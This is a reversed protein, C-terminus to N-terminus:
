AVWVGNVRNNKQISAEGTLSIGVADLELVGILCNSVLNNTGDGLIGIGLEGVTGISINTVMSDGGSLFIGSCGGAILGIRINSVICSSFFVIGALSNLIPINIDTIMGINISIEGYVSGQIDINSIVGESVAIRSYLSGIVTCNSITGIGVWFSLNDYLNQEDIITCNNIYGNGEIYFGSAQSETVTCNSITGSAAYVCYSLAYNTSFKCDEVVGSGGIMIAASGEGTVNDVVDIGSIKINNDGSFGAFSEILPFSIKVGNGRIIFNDPIVITEAVYISGGLFDVTIPFTGEGRATSLTQLAVNIALADTNTVGGVLVLDAREKNIANSPAIIFNTSVISEGGGTEAAAEAMAKVENVAGVLQKSQTQLNAVDGVDTALVLGIDTSELGMKFWWGRM